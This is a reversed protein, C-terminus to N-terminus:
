AFTGVLIAINQFKLIVPSMKSELKVNKALQGYARIIKSCHAESDTGKIPARFTFIKLDSIRNKKTKFYIPNVTYITFSIALARVQGLLFDPQLNSMVHTQVNKPAYVKIHVNLPINIDVNM